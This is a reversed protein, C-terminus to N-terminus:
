LVKQIEAYIKDAVKKFGNKDPHIENLWDGPALTGPTKAVLFDSPANREDAILKLEDNFRKIFFKAIAKQDRAATIGKADMFPKIWPDTRVAGFLIKAGTDSPIPWDYGHTVIVTEPSLDDRLDILDRYANMVSQLRRDFRETNICQEWSMDPLKTRLFGDMDWKGVIDNGGGSFLLIRIRNRYKEFLGALKRKQKGSVMSIAEDGNRELRLLNFRRRTEIHDIINSGAGFLVSQTPYGFWSDGESVVVPRNPFHKLLKRFTGLSKTHTLAELRHKERQNLM